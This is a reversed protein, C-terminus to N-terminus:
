MLTLIVALNRGFSEVLSTFSAPFKLAEHRLAHYVTTDFHITNSGSMTDQPSSNVQSYTPKSSGESTVM